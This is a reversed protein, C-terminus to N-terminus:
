RENRPYWWLAGKATTAMPNRTDVQYSDAVVHMLQTEGSWDTAPGGPRLVLSDKGVHMTHGQTIARVVAYQMSDTSAAASSCAYAWVIQMPRPSSASGSAVVVTDTRTAGAALGAAEYVARADGLYFEVAGAATVLAVAAAVFAFLARPQHGAPGKTRRRMM